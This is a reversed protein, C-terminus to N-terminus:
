AKVGKVDSTTAIAPETGAPLSVATSPLELETGDDSFYRVKWRPHCNRASGTNPDDFLVKLHAANADVLVGRKGDVEVAMGTCLPPLKYCQQIRRMGPTVQGDVAGLAKDRVDFFRLDPFHERLALYGIYRARGPRTARVTVRYEPDDRIFIEYERIM